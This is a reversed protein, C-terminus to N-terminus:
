RLLAVAARAAALGARDRDAPLLVRNRNRRERRSGPRKCGCTRCAQSALGRRGQGLPARRLHLLHEIAGRRGPFPSEIAEPEGWGTREFAAAALEVAKARQGPDAPPAALGLEFMPKVLAVLDAAAAIAVAEIQPAARALSLYSLDVTVVEIVEPVLARTLSGLNARELNVVRPDARLSGLLQGHGADVAYVRRAGGALLAVTFGGTAAGIDIAVRGEVPIAFADLAAQLKRAGRPPRPPGAIVVAAGAPIRARPNSVVVGNVRVRGEGILRAPDCVRPYLQRVRQTLAVFRPKGPV